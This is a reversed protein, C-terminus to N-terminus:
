KYSLLDNVTDIFIKVMNNVNSKEMILIRATKSMKDLDDPKTLVRREMADRLSRLDDKEFRYGTKGEFVLDDETGDAESVICTKGWFMAQNLALGGTGPLVLCDSAYFYPDIGEIIRGLYYINSDNLERIQKLIKEKLPGDGVILLKVHTYKRHLQKFGDILLEVKKEPLLGGVYLFTVYGNLEYDKRIKKSKEVVSKENKVMEDIEIGNYCTKIKDPSVGMKKAYESATTSYTLHFDAKKFFASVLYNKFSLLIGKAKGPEWGCTWLIIKRNKRKALSVVRRNTIDGAIGQLIVLDPNFKKLASFLGLNYVIKFPGIRFLYERFGENEFGPDGKFAPRGDETYQVGHYIIWQNESNLLGLKKYFTLRYPQLMPTILAIKAM